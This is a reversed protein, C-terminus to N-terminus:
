ILHYHTTIAFGCPVLYSSLCTIRLLLYISFIKLDKHISSAHLMVEWFFQFKHTLIHHFQSVQGKVAMIDMGNNCMESGLTCLMGLMDLRGYNYKKFTSTRKSVVNNNTHTNRKLEKM